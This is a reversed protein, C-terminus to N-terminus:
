SSTRKGFYDNGGGRVTFRVDNVVCWRVVAAVEAASQPVAIAPPEIKLIEEHQCRIKRREAYSHSSPRLIVIEPLSSELTSFVSVSSTM